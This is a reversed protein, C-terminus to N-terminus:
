LWVAMVSPVKPAQCSRLVTARFAPKPGHRIYVPGEPNMLAISERPVWWLPSYVRNQPARSRLGQSWFVLSSGLVQWSMSQPEIPNSGCNRSHGAWRVTRDPSRVPVRIGLKSDVASVKGSNGRTCDSAPTVAHVNRGPASYLLLLPCPFVGVPIQNQPM